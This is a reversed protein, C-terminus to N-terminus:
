ANRFNRSFIDSRQKKWAKFFCSFICNGVEHLFRCLSAVAGIRKLLSDGDLSFLQDVAEERSIM